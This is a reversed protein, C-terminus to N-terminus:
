REVTANQGISTVPVIDVFDTLFLYSNSTIKLLHEIVVYIFLKSVFLYYLLFDLTHFLM